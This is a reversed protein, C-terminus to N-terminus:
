NVKLSRLNLPLLFSASLFCVLSRLLRSWEHMTSWRPSLWLDRLSWGARVVEGRSTSQSHIVTHPATGTLLPLTCIEMGSYLDPGIPRQSAEADLFLPSRCGWSSRWNIFLQPPAPACRTPPSSGYSCTPLKSQLDPSFPSM